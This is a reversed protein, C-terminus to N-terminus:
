KNGKNWVSPLTIKTVKDDKAAEEAEADEEIGETSTATKASKKVYSEEAEILEAIPKKNARHLDLVRTRGDADLTSGNFAEAIELAKAYVEDASEEENAEIVAPKAAEEIATFRAGFDTRMAKLEELVEDMNQSGEQAESDTESNETSEELTEIIKGGAGAKVVFDASRALNLEKFVPVSQGNITELVTMGRARISIGIKDKLSKIMPRHHEFVEIDAYLGDNEYYADEALEGAYQEINGNPRVAREAATLHNLYMPTGKKFIKPGDRMVTSAPYYGTSGLRDGEILRVKYRSGVLGDQEELETLTAAEVIETKKLM